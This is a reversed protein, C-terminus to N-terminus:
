KRVQPARAVIATDFDTWHRYSGRMWLLHDKRGAYGRPVVPRVNLGQSGRTIMDAAWTKGDDRTTRKEIEFSGDVHRSLYVTSPDAHNVAIGGSYYTERERRFLPTQPFWPGGRALETDLWATGTWRAYHYRHDDEAPFRTYAIVPHGAGDAAIDWIWSRQKTSKANYVVDCQSHRIPLDQMTGIVTGDARSFSGRRYSLYYISNEPEDRPHGDTFAFYISAKGDSSVKLYPRIESAERGKEQLLIRPPSWTKGDTSTSFTPKWGPGRWFVYLLGEDSLYLPHSYTIAPTDSVTIEDEWETIDEPRVTVRCFLGQKNHRAYFVMIRNDPLVLFSNSNHDDADWNEKLTVAEVAGSRHDYAGIQLTGHRTVWGAYTREQKGNIYVARPDQFWCWAGDKSFVLTQTDNGAANYAKCGAAAAAALLAALMCAKMWGRFTDSM